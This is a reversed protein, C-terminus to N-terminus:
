AGDLDGFNLNGLQLLYSGNGSLIHVRRSERERPM